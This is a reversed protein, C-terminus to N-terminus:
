TMARSLHRRLQEVLRIDHQHHFLSMTPRQEIQRRLMQPLDEQEGLHRALVL